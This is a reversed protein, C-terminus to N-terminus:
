ERVDSDLLKYEQLQILFDRLDKELTQEDCEYLNCLSPLLSEIDSDESLLKMISSGTYNVSFSEGSLPNFVFGNESVAVNPKLKM